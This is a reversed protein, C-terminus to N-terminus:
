NGKVTTLEALPRSDQRPHPPPLVAQDLIFPFLYLLLFNRCLDLKPDTM